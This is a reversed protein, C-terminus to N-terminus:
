IAQHSGALRCSLPCLFRLLAQMRQSLDGVFSALLSGPLEIAEPVPMLLGRHVRWFASIVFDKQWWDRWRKLTRRDVGLRDRLVKGRRPNVGQCLMTMLVVVVGFYTRGGLFRVSPPTM